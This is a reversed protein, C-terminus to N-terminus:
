WWAEPVKRKQKRREAGLRLSVMKPVMSGTDEAIRSAHAIHSKRVKAGHETLMDVLLSGVHESEHDSLLSIAADLPQIVSEPNEPTAGYELLIEVRMRKWKGYGEKDWRDDYLNGPLVLDGTDPRLIFRSLACLHDPQAFGDPYPQFNPVTNIYDRGGQQLIYKLLHPSKIFDILLHCGQYTETIRVGSKIMEGALSSNGKKCAEFLAWDMEWLPGRVTEFEWLQPCIEKVDEVWIEGHPNFYINPDVPYKAM